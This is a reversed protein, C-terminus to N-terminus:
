HLLHFEFRTRITELDWGKGNCRKYQTQITDGRVGLGRGEQFRLMPDKKSIFDKSIYNTLILDCHLLTPGLDLTAPTMM